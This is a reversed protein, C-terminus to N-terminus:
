GAEAALRALTERDLSRDPPNLAAVAGGLVFLAALALFLKHRRSLKPTQM